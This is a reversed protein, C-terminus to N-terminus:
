PLMYEAVTDAYNRGNKTLSWVNQKCTVLGEQKLAELQKLWYPLLTKAAAGHKTAFTHPNIGDYLRFAFMFREAADQAETVPTGRPQLTHTCVSPRRPVGTVEAPLKTKPNPDESSCRDKRQSNPAPCQPSAEPIPNEWRYLGVRSFAAPGFGIYDAGQWIATNHQSQHNPKAYNSVEYHHYGAATLKTEATSLPDTSNSQQHNITSQPQQETKKASALARQEPHPCGPELKNIDNTQMEHLISNPDISLAYVSIHQPNLAIVEDLTRKWTASDVGPLASILDLGINKIGSSQLQKVTQITQEATHRRAMNKLIKDDMSQAGLSIRTIGYEKIVSIKEDTFTGPNGELTWETTEDLNIYRQLTQFIKKLQPTSLLSPTGGGMYITKPQINYTSAAAKIESELADLYRDVSNKNYIKSYFGCYLCKGSCFPVHIYIHPIQNM